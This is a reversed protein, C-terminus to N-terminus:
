RESGGRAQGARGERRGIWEMGKAEWEGATADRARARLGDEVADEGDGEDAVRVDAEVGTNLIVNVRALIRKEARESAPSQAHNRTQRDPADVLKVRVIYTRRGETRHRKRWAQDGATKKSDSRNHRWCSGVKM